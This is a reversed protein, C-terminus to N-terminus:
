MGQGSVEGVSPARNDRTEIGMRSLAEADELEAQREDSTTFARGGGSSAASAGGIIQDAAPQQLSFRVMQEVIDRLSRFNSSLTPLQKAVDRIAKLTDVAEPDKLIKLASSITTLAAVLDRLWRILFFACVGAAVLVLVLVVTGLVIAVIATTNM